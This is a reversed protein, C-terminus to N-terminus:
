NKYKSHELSVFTTGLYGGLRDYIVKKYYPHPRGYPHAVIADRPINKKRLEYSSMLDTIFECTYSNVTTAPFVASDPVVCNQKIKAAVMGDIFNPPIDPLTPKPTTEDETSSLLDSLDVWTYPDTTTLTGTEKTPTEEVTNHESEVHTYNPKYEWSLPQNIYEESSKLHPHGPKIGNKYINSFYINSKNNKNSEYLKEVRKYEPDKYGPAIKKPGGMEELAKLYKADYKYYRENSFRKSLYARSKIIMTSTENFDEEALNDTSNSLLREFFNNEDKKEVYTEKTGLREDSYSVPAVTDHEKVKAWLAKAESPVQSDYWDPPPNGDQDLPLGHKRCYDNFESSEGKPRDMFIQMATININDADNWHNTTFLWDNKVLSDQSDFSETDFPTTTKTKRKTRTSNKIWPPRYTVDNRNITPWYVTPPPFRLLDSPNIKIWDGDYDGPKLTSSAETNLILRKAGPPDYANHYGEAMDKILRECSNSFLPFMYTAMRYNHTARYRLGHKELTDYYIEDKEETNLSFPTKDMRQRYFPISYSKMKMKLMHLLKKRFISYPIHKEAETRIPNTGEDIMKMVKKPISWRVKPTTTIENKSFGYYIDRMYNPLTINLYEESDTCNELYKFHIKTNHIDDPETTGRIIDIVSDPIRWALPKATLHIVTENSNETTDQLDRKRRRGGIERSIDASDIIDDYDITKEQSTERKRTFPEYPEDSHQNDTQRLNSQTAANNGFSENKHWVLTRSTSTFDMNTILDDLHELDALIKLRAEEDLKRELNKAYDRNGRRDPGTPKLTTTTTYPYKWYRQWDLTSPTKWYYQLYGTTSSQGLRWPETRMRNEKKGIISWHFVAHDIATYENRIYDFNLQPADEPKMSSLGWYYFNSVAEQSDVFEDFDVEDEKKDPNDKLYQRMRETVNRQIEHEIQALRIPNRTLSKLNHVMLDTNIVSRNYYYPNYKPYLTKYNGMPFTFTQKRNDDNLFFQESEFIYESDLTAVNGHRLRQAKKLRHKLVNDYDMSNQTRLKPPAYKEYDSYSQVSSDRMLKDVVTLRETYMKHYHMTSWFAAHEKVQKSQVSLMDSPLGPRLPMQKWEEFLTEFDKKPKAIRVEKTLRRKTKGFFRRKLRFFPDEELEISWTTNDRGRTYSYIPPFTWNEHGTFYHMMIHPWTVNGMIEWPYYNTTIPVLRCAISTRKTIKFRRRKPSTLHTRAMFNRMFISTTKTPNIERKSETINNKPPIQGTSYKDEVKNSFNINSIIARKRRFETVIDIDEIKYTRKKNRIDEKQRRFFEHKEQDRRLWETENYRSTGPLSDDYWETVIDRDYSEKDIREIHDSFNKIEEGFSHKHLDDGLIRQRLINREMHEKAYSGYRDIFNKVLNSTHHIFPPLDTVNIRKSMETLNVYFDKNFMYKTTHTTQAEKLNVYFDKNFQYKKTVTLNSDKNYQYKTPSTAKTKTLNVYCFKNFQNSATKDRGKNQSTYMFLKNQRLIFNKYFMSTTKIGNKDTARPRTKLIGLVTNKTPESLNQRINNQSRLFNRLFVSMTTSTLLERQTLQFKLWNKLYMSTTTEITENSSMLGLHVLWKPDLDKTMRIHLERTGTFPWFDKPTPQTTTHRMAQCATMYQIVDIEEWPTVYTCNPDFTFMRGMSDTYGTRRTWTTNKNRAFETFQRKFLDFQATMYRDVYDGYLAEAYGFDSIENNNVRDMYNKFNIYSDNTDFMVPRYRKTTSFRYRRNRRDKARKLYEFLHISTREERKVIRHGFLNTRSTGINHQLHPNVRNKSQMDSGIGQAEINRMNKEWQADNYPRSKEENGKFINAGHREKDRQNVKPQNLMKLDDLAKRKIQSLDRKERSKSQTENFKKMQQHHFEMGKRNFEREEESIGPEPDQEPLNVAKEIMENTNDGKRKRSQIDGFGSDYFTWWPETTKLAVEELYDWATNPTVDRYKKREGFLIDYENEAQAPDVTRTLHDPCPKRNNGCFMPHPTVAELNQHGRGPFVEDYWKFFDDNKVIHTSLPPATSYDRMWYIDTSWKFESEIRDKFMFKYFDDYQLYPVTKTLHDPIPTNNPHRTFLAAVTINDLNVIRGPFMMDYNEIYKDTDVTKRLNDSLPPYRSSYLPLGYKTRIEHWSMNRFDVDKANKLREDRMAKWDARAETVGEWNSGLDDLITNNWEWNKPLDELTGMDDFIDAEDKTDNENADGHKKTTRHPQTRHNNSNIEELYITKGKRKYRQEIYEKGQKLFEEYEAYMDPKTKTVHTTSKHVHKRSELSKVDNRYIDRKHRKEEIVIGLTTHKKVREKEEMYDSFNKKFEEYEAFMQKEGPEMDHDSIERKHRKENIIIGQTILKKAREKEEMYDSFNKKFEEYEEFMKKEGSEVQRNTIDRKHREEKIMICPTTKKKARDKEEMYDSFNKKFEEYEKFMQRECTEMENENRVNRKGRRINERLPDVKLWENYLHKLVTKNRRGQLEKQQLDYLQECKEVNHAYDYTEKSWNYPNPGLIDEFNLYTHSFGPPLTPYTPYKSVRTPEETFKAQNSAKMDVKYYTPSFYKFKRMHPPTILKKAELFTQQKELWEREFSARWDWGPPKPTWNPDYSATAVKEADELLKLRGKGDAQGLTYINAGLTLCLITNMQRGM